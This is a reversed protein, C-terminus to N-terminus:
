RIDGFDAIATVNLGGPYQYSTFEGYGIVQIGVPSGAKLVHAGEFTDSLRIRTPVYNSCGISEDRGVVSTGVPLESVSVGDLVLSTGLEHTIDVFNGSQFPGITGDLYVEQVLYDTPAIFVYHKRYQEVSSVLSQAPDGALTRVDLVAGQLFTNIAFAESALVEFGESTDWVTVVEGASLRDPAGNPKAGTPYQLETGDVAGYFRIVEDARDGLAGSPLGVFYHRGWSELPMVIEELHDCAEMNSPVYTCPIGSIVQIPKDALVLSGSLDAFATGFLQVVQGRALTFRTQSGAGPNGVVVGGSVLNGTASLKVEVTTNDETGTIAVFPGLLAFGDNHWGPYGTVSYTGTLAHSPILLSADNTYSPELEGTYRLPNFQYATVPVSSTLHYAGDLVSASPVATGIAEVAGKLEDVWPLEIKRISNPSIEIEAYPLGARTISVLAAQTGTNAVAVVFEYNPDVVNGTVTPWFDCGVYSRSAEAQACTAPEEAVDVGEPMVLLGDDPLVEDECGAVVPASGFPSPEPEDSQTCGSQAWLLVAGALWGTRAGGLKRTMTVVM